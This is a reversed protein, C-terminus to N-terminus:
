AFCEGVLNRSNLIDGAAQRKKGAFQLESIRLVGQGCSVDIGEATHAIVSGPNIEFQGAMPEARWIKVHTDALASFSVPWPNFARVQRDLETAPLTWDVRAEQKTLKTAYTALHEEQEQAPLTQSEIADLKDMLLNAGLLKLRDHLKASTTHPGIETRASALMAGTDLGADMQMLTIGTEDDGALIARQIPAAGRWRPLLSAHINICGLRPINLVDTPLILGYAAVIMLDPQYSALQEIAQQNRLSLPQEVVREAELAALKVPSAQLKRGRGSPRDPQTYVAVVEHRTGLLAKLPPVSFEPTGAYVIKM